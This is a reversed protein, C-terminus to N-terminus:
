FGQPNAVELFYSTTGSFVIAWPGQAPSNAARFVCNMHNPDFTFWQTTNPIPITVSNGQGDPVGIVSGNGVAALHLLISGQPINVTGNAGTYIKTPFVVKEWGM